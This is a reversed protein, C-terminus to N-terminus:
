GVEGGRGGGRGPIGEGTVDFPPEVTGSDRVGRGLSECIM